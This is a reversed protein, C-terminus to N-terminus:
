ARDRRARADGVATPGPSPVIEIPRESVTGNRLRFARIVPRRPNQLSCILYYAEPYYALRIDTSSPYAPTAPHSHFIGVLDAGEADLTRMVRLIEKEPISYGVRSREGNTTPFFRDARDGHGGLIGCSELPSEAYAHQIMQRHVEETVQM